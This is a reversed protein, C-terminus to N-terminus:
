FKLMTRMGLVLADRIAVAGSPDRPDSVRGGPHVIYQLNPQVSWSEALAMQYSLEFTAEYDRIPMAAGTVGVVDRDFAAARPSVRGYAVGLGATDDPRLDILGKCTLGADLYFDIPNRDSPAAVARLFANLEGTGHRGGARWLMQDIMAYVGYNGSHQLPPGGSAALLGGVRDLRQDPFQGTHLWAGLKVTGPLGVTGTAAAASPRRSTRSGGGEQHPNEAPLSRGQNYAYALEAILLPPDDVRFALGNPDRRVPNDAGPGAPNGNFIAARV